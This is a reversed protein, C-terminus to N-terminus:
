HHCSLFSVLGCSALSPVQYDIEGSNDEDITEMLQQFEMETLDIGSNKLGTRFEHTSVTGDKNEDFKRFLKRVNAVKRELQESVRQFVASGQPPLVRGHEIWATFEALDVQGSGDGDMSTMADDLQRQSLHRGARGALLALEDRDLYGSGDQDVENFLEQIHDRKKRGPSRASRQSMNGRAQTLALGKAKLGRKQQMIELMMNVPKAEEAADTMLEKVRESNFHSACRTKTVLADMRLHWSDSDPDINEEVGLDRPTSDLLSKTVQKSVKALHPGHPINYYREIGSKALRRRLERREDSDLTGNHDTDFERALVLDESSVVGDGDIDFSPHPQTEAWRAYWLSQKNSYRPHSVWGGLPHNAGNRSDRTVDIPSRRLQGPRPRRYRHVLSHDSGSSDVRLALPSHGDSAAHRSAARRAPVM